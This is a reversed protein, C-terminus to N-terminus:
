FGCRNEMQYKTSDMAFHEFGILWNSLDIHLTVFVFVLKIYFPFLWVFAHELTQM